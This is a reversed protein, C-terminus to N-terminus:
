EDAGFVQNRARRLVQVLRNCSQRDLTVSVTRYGYMNDVYEILEKAIVDTLVPEGIRVGHATGPEGRRKPSAKAVEDEAHVLDRMKMAVLELQDGQLLQAILGRDTPELEAGDVKAVRIRLQAWADTEWVVEAVFPQDEGVPRVTEKPM